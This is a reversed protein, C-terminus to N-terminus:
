QRTAPGAEHATALYEALESITPYNFLLKPSVTEGLWNELEGSIGILTISDLGFHAFTENVDIRSESTKLQNAIRNVLWSQISEHSRAHPTTAVPAATPVDADDPEFVPDENPPWQALIDLEGSLFKERCARRQVKGSSTKPLKGVKLLVITHPAVDLTQFVAKRISATIEELDYKRYERVLEQAIVLQETNQNDISFAVGGGIRIAEHATEVISEFDHPYLNRGNIIILDKSRGTVFLQGDYFFGLDGTRLFGNNEHHEIALEGHFVRRTEEDNNWYGRAVSKSQVWIEGVQNEPSAICNEPDVITVQQEPLIQGSSVLKRASPDSEFVPEVLNAELANTTM